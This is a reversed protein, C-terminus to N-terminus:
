FSVPSDVVTPLFASNAGLWSLVCRVSGRKLLISACGGVGKAVFAEMVLGEGPCTLSTKLELLEAQFFIKEILDDLDDPREEEGETEEVEGEAEERDEENEDREDEGEDNRSQPRNSKRESSGEQTTAPQAKADLRTQRPVPALHQRKRARKESFSDLFSKADVLSVQVDGGLPETVVGHEALQSLVRLVPPSSLLSESSAALPSPLARSSSLSLRTRKTLAVVVPVNAARCM